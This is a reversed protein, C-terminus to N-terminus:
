ARRKVKSRTRVTRKRSTQRKAPKLLKEIKKLREAATPARTRRKRRRSTGSAKKLMDQLVDSAVSKVFDTLGSM